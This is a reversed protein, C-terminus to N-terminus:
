HRIEKRKKPDARCKTRSVGPSREAVTDLQACFMKKLSPLQKGYMEAVQLELSNIHKINVKMADEQSKCASVCNAAVDGLVEM